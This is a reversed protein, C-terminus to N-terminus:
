IKLYFKFYLPHMNQSTTDIYFTLFPSMKASNNQWIFNNKSM